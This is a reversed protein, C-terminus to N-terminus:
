CGLKSGPSCGTDRCIEIQKRLVEISLNDGYELDPIRFTIIELIEPPQFHEPKTEPHPYYVLGPLPPSEEQLVRCNVFSFDEAPVRSSWKIRRLTLDAQRIKFEFPAISLNITGPHYDELNCGAKKFHPLQMQLTGGPFRPDSCATSAVRHGRQVVGRVGMWPTM